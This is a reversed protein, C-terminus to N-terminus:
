GKLDTEAEADRGRCLIKEISMFLRALDDATAPGIRLSPKAALRCEIIAM